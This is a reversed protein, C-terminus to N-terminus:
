KKKVEAGAVEEVKEKLADPLNDYLATGIKTTLNNDDIDDFNDESIEKELDSLSNWGKDQKNGFYVALKVVESLRKGDTYISELETQSFSLKKYFGLTIKLKYDQDKIKVTNKSM